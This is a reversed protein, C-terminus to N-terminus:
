TNNSKASESSGRPVFAELLSKAVDARDFMITGDDVFPMFYDSGNVWGLQKVTYLVKLEGKAEKNEIFSWKNKRSM